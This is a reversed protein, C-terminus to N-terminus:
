AARDWHRSAGSTRSRRCRTPRTWSSRCSPRDSSSASRHASRSALQDPRAADPKRDRGPRPTGQGRARRAGPGRPVPEGGTRRRLARPSQRPPRHRRDRRPRQAARGPAEDHRHHGRQTLTMPGTIEPRGFRSNVKMRGVRSLDYTEDDFFLRRFLTEVADETPPEGPRMMRYIAIRAALQDGTEDIRLTNSIFPGQDLDNTYITRIEQVNAVRLKKLTDETLEDNANAVIEGTEPDVVNNALVRGLLYDETVAIRKM